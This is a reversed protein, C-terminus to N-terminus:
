RDCLVSGLTAGALLHVLGPVRTPQEGVVSKQMEQSGDTSIQRTLIDSEPAPLESMRDASWDLGNPFDPNFHFKFTVSGCFSRHWKPGLAGFM